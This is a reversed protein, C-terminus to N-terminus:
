SIRLSGETEIIKKRSVKRNLKKKQRNEGRWHHNVRMSGLFIVGIESEVPTWQVRCNSLVHVRYLNGSIDALYYETESKCSDSHQAPDM